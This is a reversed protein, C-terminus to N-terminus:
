DRENEKLMFSIFVEKRFPHFNFFIKTIIGLLDICYRSGSFSEVIWSENQITIRERLPPRLYTILNKFQFKIREHEPWPM